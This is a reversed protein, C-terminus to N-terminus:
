AGHGLAAFVGVRDRMPDFSFGGTVGILWRTEFGGDQLPLDTRRPTLTVEIEQGARWITLRLPHGEATAVADRLQRFAFVPVGDVARIVDGQKLGASFAASQPAVTEILPILPFAAETQIM